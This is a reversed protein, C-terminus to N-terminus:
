ERSDNSLLVVTELWLWKDEDGGYMAAPKVMAAHRVVNSTLTSDLATMPNHAEDIYPKGIHSIDLGPFLSQVYQASVDVFYTDLMVYCGEDVFRQACQQFREWEGVAALLQLSWFDVGSTLLTASASMLGPCRANVELLFTSSPETPSVPVPQLDLMAESGALPAYQVTSDRVRAECHFVGSHFGQRLVSEKVSAILEAQENAPLISPTIAQSEAFTAMPSTSDLDATSPPEDVVESFLLEGNLLVINVDCEPGECYREIVIADGARWASFTKSVNALLESENNSKFVCTSMSGHAPKSILPYDRIPSNRLHMHLDTMSRIEFSTGIPKELDRTLQKSTSITYAEPSSTPLGLASAAKAVATLYKDAGPVLGHINDINGKLAAVLRSPLGRDTTIDLSIFGAVLSKWEAVVQPDLWWQGSSIIVIDLGLGLAMQWKGRTASLSLHDIIYFVRRRSLACPSIWTCQLRNHIQSELVKLQDGSIDADISAGGIALPLLCLLNSELDQHGCDANIRDNFEVFSVIQTVAKVGALRKALFGADAMYGDSTPVVLVAIAS